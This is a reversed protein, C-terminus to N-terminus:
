LAPVLYEFQREFRTLAILDRIPHKLGVKLIMKAKKQSCKISTSLLANLGTLDVDTVKTMDVILNQDEEVKKHLKENLNIANLTKLSGSLHAHIDMGLQTYDIKFTNM